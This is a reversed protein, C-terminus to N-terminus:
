ASAPASTAAAGPARFLGGRSGTFATGGAPTRRKASAQRGRRSRLPTRQRSASMVALISRPGTASGKARRGRGIPDLRGRDGAIHTSASRADDKGLAPMRRCIEQLDRPRANAAREESGRETQSRSSQSSPVPFKLQAGRLTNVLVQHTRFRSRFRTLPTGRGSPTGM